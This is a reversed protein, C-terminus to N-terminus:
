GVHVVVRRREVIGVEVERPDLDVLLREDHRVGVRTYLIRMRLATVQIELQQVKM